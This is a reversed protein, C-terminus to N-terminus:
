LAAGASLMAEMLRQLVPRLRDARVEDFAFDPAESMYAIQSIEMQVAHVGREPKGYQRTIYGGKFRGNCVTSYPASELQKRLSKALEPACATDDATGLNLDPLQGDFFMPVQSRISHADWLLAYGFRKKLRALTDSLAAHYPQWFRVQRAELEAADPEEGDRYLPEGDFSITPVLGTETKGPYLAGGDPPRNLDIVYRSFRAQLVTADLDGLFNYLQPVHWDTDALRLAAPRLRESLGDSLAVGSHPMSVLLPSNGSRLTFTDTSLKNM